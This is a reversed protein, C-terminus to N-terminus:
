GDTTVKDMLSRIKTDLEDDSLTQVQIPGGGPGSFEKREVFMGLHRAVNELAKGQDQFKIEIGAQTQKIGAYLLSAKSGLKRTDAVHLEANGEGSCYPCDPSPEALRNFGYGGTNSPMVPLKDEKASRKAMLVAQDYEKKDRWQYEHNIGYCHRCCVRRMHIIDNPDATAIDWWRQLVKEATIETNESREEMAIQIAEKIRPKGLNELGIAEATKKSYGARIAAQTANLDVLYERIFIEQKPTLKKDAM